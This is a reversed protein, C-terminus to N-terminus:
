ALGLRNFTDIDWPLIDASTFLAQYVRVSSPDMGAINLPVPRELDEKDLLQLDIASVRNVVDQESPTLDPSSPTLVHTWVQTSPDARALVAYPAVTSLGLAWHEGDRSLSLIFAVDDNEDTTDIVEFDAELEEIFAAYPREQFHRTIAFHRPESLSGYAREIEALVLRRPVPTPSGV